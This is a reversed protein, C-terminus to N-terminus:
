SASSERSSSRRPGGAEVATVHGIAERCPECDDVHAEIERRRDPPLAHEVFAVLEGDGPCIAM